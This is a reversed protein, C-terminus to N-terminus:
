VFVPATTMIPKSTCPLSVTFTAYQNATGGVPTAVMTVTGSFSPSAASVPGALPMLVFDFQAGEEQFSIVSFDTVDAWAQFGALDLAWSSNSTGSSDYTACFTELTAGTSGGGASPTLQAQSLQCRFEIPATVEGVKVLTLSVDKLVFPASTQAM